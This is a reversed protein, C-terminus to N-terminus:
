PISLLIHALPLTKHFTRLILPKPLRSMKCILFLQVNNHAVHVCVHAVSMPWCSAILTLNVHRKERTRPEPEKFYSLRESCFRALGSKLLVPRALIQSRVARSHQSKISSDAVISRAQFSSRSWSPNGRRWRVSTVGRLSVAPDGAM